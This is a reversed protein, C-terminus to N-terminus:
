WSIPLSYEGPHYSLITRVPAKSDLASHANPCPGLAERDFANESSSNFSAVAGSARLQHQGRLLPFKPVDIAVSPRSVVSTGLTHKGLRQKWRRRRFNEIIQGPMRIRLVGDIADKMPPHEVGADLFPRRFNCPGDSLEDFLTKEFLLSTRIAIYKVADGRMIERRKPM